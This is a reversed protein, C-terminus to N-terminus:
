NVEKKIEEALLQTKLDPVKLWCMQSRHLSDCIKNCNQVHVAVIQTPNLYLYLYTDFLHVGIPLQLNVPNNNIEITHSKENFSLKLSQPEPNLTHPNIQLCNM